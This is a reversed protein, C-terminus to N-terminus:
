ISSLASGAEEKALYNEIATDYKEKWEAIEGWEMGDVEVSGDTVVGLEEFPHNGLTKKLENIKGAKVTVVVRSQKEGFWQADKRTNYDAAVVDFGLGRHFGSELSPPKNTM